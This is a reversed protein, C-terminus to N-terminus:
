IACNCFIRFYWDFHFSLFEQNNTMLLSTRVKVDHMYCVILKDKNICAVWDLVDSPDAELLTKWQDREPQNFDIQILRYNPADKNTRFVVM